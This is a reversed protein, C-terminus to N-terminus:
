RLFQPIRRPPAVVVRACEAGVAVEPEKPASGASAPLSEGGFFELPVMLGLSDVPAIEPIANIARPIQHPIHLPLLFTPLSLSNKFVKHKYRLIGNTPM